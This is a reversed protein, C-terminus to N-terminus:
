QEQGKKMPCVADAPIRGMVIDECFAMCGPAGCVGCDLHPLTQYLRQIELLKEFAVQRDNDFSQGDTELQREVLYFDLPKDIEQLTKGVAPFKKRLQRLRAKAVFPNEVNLVGGVCGGICANLEMFDVNSLSGNELRGLIDIVNEIGDAALYKDCAVGAAEGGSSAWQLGLVGMESLNQCEEMKSIMPAIMKYVEAVSLVGDVYNQHVMKNAKLSYVKAPCPSIFFVGIDQAPVGHHLARERALKASVDVPPLLPLLNPKLNEFRENILELVAPCATSIVPRRLKGSAVLKQTVQSVLEAGIGVEFVFDFGITKLATLVYNVNTVSSFQGYFSPAVLAIKYKYNNIIDFKDYSPIKALSKCIRVCEGCAVCKDYIISAKGNRVRIAETPCRKICSGCGICRDADLTVTHLKKLNNKQM